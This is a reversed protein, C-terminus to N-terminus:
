RAGVIGLIQGLLEECLEQFFIVQLVGVGASPLKAGKEQGRELAEQGVFVRSGGCLLSAAMSQRQRELKLVAFVTVAM